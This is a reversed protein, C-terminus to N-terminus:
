SKLTIVWTFDFNYAATKTRSGFVVRTVLTDDASLLAAESIPFGNGEASLLSAAFTVKFNPADVTPVVAKTPTIPTQLFDQDAAPALTGTGFQMRDIYTTAGGGGLLAVLKEYMNDLIMNNTHVLVERKGTLVNVGSLIFEGNM